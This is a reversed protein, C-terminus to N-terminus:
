GLFTIIKLPFEQIEHFKYPIYGICFSFSKQLCLYELGSVETKLFYDIARELICTDTDKDTKQLKKLIRFIMKEELHPFM